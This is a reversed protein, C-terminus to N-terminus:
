SVHFLELPLRVTAIANATDHFGNIYDFALAVMVVLVLTVFLPDM